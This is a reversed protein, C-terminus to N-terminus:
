RSRHRRAELAHVVGAVAHQLLTVALIVLVAVPQNGLTAGALGLALGTNKMGLAYSWAIRVGRPLRAFRAAPAAVLAGVIPLSM